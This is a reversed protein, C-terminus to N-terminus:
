RSAVLLERSRPYDSAPRIGVACMTDLNVLAVPDKIGKAIVTLCQNLEFAFSMGFEGVFKIGEPMNELLRGNQLFGVQIPLNILVPIPDM